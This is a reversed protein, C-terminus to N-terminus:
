GPQWRMWRRSHELGIWDQNGGTAATLQLEVKYQITVTRRSNRKIGVPIAILFANFRIRGIELLKIQRRARV